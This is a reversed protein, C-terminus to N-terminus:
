RMGRKKSQPIQGFAGPRGFPGSGARGAIPRAKCKAVVCGHGDPFYHLHGPHLWTHPAWWSPTIVFLANPDGGVVRFWERLAREPDPLHELIHSALVAGFQGTQFDSLDQADAYTVQGSTGHPVDKRGKLDINVDGYLTAGFLASSGTGAGVNLLPLGRKAAYARAAQAAGARRVPVDLVYTGALYLAGLGFLGM